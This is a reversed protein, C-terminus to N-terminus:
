LPHKPQTDTLEIGPIGKHGPIWLLNKMGPRGNLLSRKHHTVPSQREIAKLLSQRGTCITTSYEHHNSTAWEFALQMAAAEDAFSSAFAAGCLHSQHLITPDAPDSRTVIVGAGGDKTGTSALGARVVKYTEATPPPDKPSLKGEPIM